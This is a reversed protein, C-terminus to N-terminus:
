LVPAFVPSSHQLPVDGLQSLGCTSTQAPFGLLQSYCKAPPLNPADGLRWGKARGRIAEPIKPEPTLLEQLRWRQLSDQPLSPAPPPPPHTETHEHSACPLPTPLSPKPSTPVSHHSPQSSLHSSAGSGASSVSCTSSAWSDEAAGNRMRRLVMGREGCGWWPPPVRAQAMEAPWLGM